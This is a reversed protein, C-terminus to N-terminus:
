PLRTSDITVGQDREAQLSDLLFSWEIKLGRRESSARAGNLRGEPLNGSDHLLRGILTSKGHDVHGVIVIPTPDERRQLPFTALAASM